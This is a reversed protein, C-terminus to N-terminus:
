AVGDKVAAWSERSSIDKWWRAVNPQKELADIGMSGFMHGFPLHFLDALTVQSGALYKQKALISDYANLKAELLTVLESVRKQDPEEGRLRKFINEDAIGNGIPDFNTLEISAAQEFLAEEKLGTPILEQTGQSAYKKTLYRSIARSEYVIFGDDDIYPVQGFPQVKTYAEGKHAGTMMDVTVLEYPINKERCVLAVRKTCISIPFGYIKLVM